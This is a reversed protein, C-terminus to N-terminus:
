LWQRSPRWQLGEQEAKMGKEQRLLSSEGTGAIAAGLDTGTTEIMEAIISGNGVCLVSLGKGGRAFADIDRFRM